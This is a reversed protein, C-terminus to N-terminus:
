IRHGEGLCVEENVEARYAPYLEPLVFGGAALDLSLLSLLILRVFRSSSSTKPRLFALGIRPTVLTRIGWWIKAGVTLGYWSDLRLHFQPIYGRPIAVQVCGYRIYKVPSCSIAVIPPYIGRATAKQAPERKLSFDDTAFQYRARSGFRFALIFCFQAAKMSVTQM